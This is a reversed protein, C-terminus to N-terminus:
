RIRQLRRVDDGSLRCPDRKPANRFEEVIRANVAAIAANSAAEAEARQALREAAEKDKQYTLVQAKLSALQAGTEASRHGIWYGFTYLALAAVPLWARGSLGGVWPALRLAAKGLFSAALSIM